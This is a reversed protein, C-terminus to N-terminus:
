PTSRAAMYVAHASRSARRIEEDGGLRLAEEFEDCAEALLSLRLDIDALLALRMAVGATELGKAFNARQDASDSSLTTFEAGGEALEGADGMARVRWTYHIGAALADEPVAVLTDRTNKTFV